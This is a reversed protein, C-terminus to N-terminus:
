LLLSHFLMGVELGVCKCWEDQLVYELVSPALINCTGYYRLFVYRSSLFASLHHLLCVAYCFSWIMCSM